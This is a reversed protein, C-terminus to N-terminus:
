RPTRNYDIRQCLQAGEEGRCKDVGGDANFQFIPLFNLSMLFTIIVLM